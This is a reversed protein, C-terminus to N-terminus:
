THPSAFTFAKLLHNCHSLLQAQAIPLLTNFCIFFVIVKLSNSFSFIVGVSVNVKESVCCCSHLQCVTLTQLMTRTGCLTLTNKSFAMNTAEAKVQPVIHNVRFM